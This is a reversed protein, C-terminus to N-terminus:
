DPYTDEFIVSGDANYFVYKLTIDEIGCEEAVSDIIGQMYEDTFSAELQEAASNANSIQSAYKYYYTFTNGDLEYGLDSYVDNYTEKLSTMQEDLDAKIQPQSYYEELTGTQATASDTSESSTSEDEYIDSYFAYYDVSNMGVMDYYYSDDEELIFGYYPVKEASTNQTYVGNEYIEVNTFLLCFYHVYEPYSSTIRVQEDYTIGYESLEEAIFNMAQVDYYMEYDCLMYLDESDYLKATNEYFEWYSEENNVEYWKIGDLSISEPTASTSNGNGSHSNADNLNFEDFNFEYDDLDLGEFESINTEPDAETSVESDPEYEYSYEDTVLVSTPGDAGGISSNNQLINQLSNCGTLATILIVCGLITIIKKTKM